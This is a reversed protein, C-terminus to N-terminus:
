RQAEVKQEAALKYVGLAIASFFTTEGCKECVVLLVPFVNGTPTGPAPLEPLQFIRDTISLREHGCIRCKSNEWLGELKQLLEKVEEPTLKM